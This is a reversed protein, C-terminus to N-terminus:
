VAALEAAEPADSPRFRLLHYAILLQTPALPRSRHCEVGDPFVGISEPDPVGAMGMQTQVLQELAIVDRDAAIGAIHLVTAARDGDM